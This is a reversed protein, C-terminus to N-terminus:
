GNREGVDGSWAKKGGRSHAIRRGSRRRRVATEPTPSNKALITIPSALFFRPCPFVAHARAAPRARLM